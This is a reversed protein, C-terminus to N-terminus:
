IFCIHYLFRINYHEASMCYFSNRSRFWNKFFSLSSQHSRINLAFIHHFKSDDRYDDRIWLFRSAVSPCWSLTLSSWWNIERTQQSSWTAAYSPPFFLKRLWCPSNKDQFNFTKFNQGLILYWTVLRHLKTTRRQLSHLQFRSTKQRERAFFQWPQIKRPRSVARCKPPPRLASHSRRCGQAARTKGNASRRDANARHCSRQPFPAAGGQHM